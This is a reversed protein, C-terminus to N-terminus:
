APGITQATHGDQGCAPSVARRRSSQAAFKRILGGQYAHQIYQMVKADRQHRHLTDVILCFIPRHRQRRFLLILQAGVWGRFLSAANRRRCGSSTRRSARDVAFCEM